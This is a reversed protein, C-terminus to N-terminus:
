EEMWVSAKEYTFGKEFDRKVKSVRRKMLVFNESSSFYPDHVATRISVMEKYIPDIAKKGEENYYYIIQELNMFAEDISKKQRKANAGEEMSANLEDLWGRVFLWYQHYMDSTPVKPYEKLELYLPPPVEKRRKRVFKKRLAMCGTFDFVMILVFVAIFFKRM